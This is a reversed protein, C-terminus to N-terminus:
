KESTYYTFSGIEQKNNTCKAMNKRVYCVFSLREGMPKGPLPELPTNCHMEHVNMIVVDGDRLDVGVDYRPFGTYGGTYNDDGVVTLNGLGEDLDGADYHCATRWNYNTTITTFATGNIKMEPIIKNMYAVQRGYHDPALNKYVDSITKFFPVSTEFLEAKHKNFATTRCAVDSGLKGRHQMVPKDYYGAIQSQSINGRCIGRSDRQKAKGGELLGSAYGRNDNKKKAHSKFVKIATKKQDEPIVNKRFKFLINGDPAYCDCDESVVTGFKDVFTGQPPLPYEKTLKIIKVM